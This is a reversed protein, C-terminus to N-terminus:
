PVSSKIIESLYRPTVEFIPALEKAIDWRSRKKNKDSLERAKQKADEHWDSDFLQNSARAERADPLADESARKGAARRDYGRRRWDWWEVLRGMHVGIRWVGDTDNEKIYHQRDYEAAAFHVLVWALSAHLDKLDECSPAAGTFREAIKEREGATVPTPYQPFGAKKLASELNFVDVGPFLAEIESVRKADIGDVKFSRRVRRAGINEEVVSSPLFPGEDPNLVDVFV